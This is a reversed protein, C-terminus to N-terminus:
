RVVVTARMGPHLTCVYEYTGPREFRTAFSQGETLPGSDFSGSDSPTATSTVTHPAADDNTWRVETGAAVTLTPPCYAFTAIVVLPSRDATPAPCNSVTVTAPHPDSTGAREADVGGRAGPRWVALVVVVLELALGASSAPRRWRVPEQCFVAEACARVPQAAASAGGDVTAEVTLPHSRVHRAFSRRRAAVTLDVTAELGPGVVVAEDGLLRVYLAETGASPCVGLEEVLLERCRQYARLAAGRNGAAAHAAMVRQHSSERLPALAIAREGSAVATGHDACASAADSLLELARVGLTALEDQRREVWAGSAGPLFRRGALHAAESAATRAEHAAGAELAGEAAAVAEAVREVDIGIEGSLRFQYCGFQSRVVGPGDLGAATLVSRLRSVVGRLAAEWTAPLDEGWLAEALEDRAIPRHRELALYALAIRGLDGLRRDDAAVGDVEIALRGLLSIDVAM